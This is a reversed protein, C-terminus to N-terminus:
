VSRETVLWCYKSNQQVAAYNSEYAKLCGEDVVNASPGLSGRDQLGVGGFHPWKRRLGATRDPLRRSASPITRKKAFLAGFFSAVCPRGCADAMREITTRLSRCVASRYELRTWLRTDLRSRALRTDAAASTCNTLTNSAFNRAPRQDTFESRLGRLRHDGLM